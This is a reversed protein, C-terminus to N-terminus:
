AEPKRRALRDRLRAAREYDQAEVAEALQERLTRSIGYVARVEREMEGLAELHADRDAAGPPGFGTLFRRIATQGAQLEEVAGEADNDDLRLRAAAQTRHMLVFPRYQEHGAVRGADPCHERLFDMLALNHDADAMARRYERLALWSVRRHYFQLLERDIELWDDEDLEIPAGQGAAARTQLHALVSECGHPRAGDPRGETEMQLLGCDVRFQLKPRGDLGVIRRASVRGTEFDWNELIESLDESM